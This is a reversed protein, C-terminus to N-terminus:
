AILKKQIRNIKEVGDLNRIKLIDKAWENEENDEFNEGLVVIYELFRLTEDHTNINYMAAKGVGQKVIEEIQADTNRQTFMLYKEKLHLFAKKEFIIRGSQALSKMQYESVTMM